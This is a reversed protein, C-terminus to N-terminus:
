KRTHDQKIEREHMGIEKWSHVAAVESNNAGSSGSQLGRASNVPTNKLSKEMKLM